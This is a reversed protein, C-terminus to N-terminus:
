TLRRKRTIVEAQALKATHVLESRIALVSKSYKRTRDKMAGNYRQLARTENGKEFALYSKLIAAGIRLNEEASTHSPHGDPFKKAHVRGHVQMMGYPKAPDFGGDPNGINRFGSEKAAVALLLTPDLNLEDAVRYAQAVINRSRTTGIKWKGAIHDTIREIEPGSPEPGMDDDAFALTAAANEQNISDLYTAAALCSAAFLAATLKPSM